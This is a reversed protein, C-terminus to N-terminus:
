TFTIARADIKAHLYYTGLLSPPVFSFSRISRQESSFNSVPANEGWDVNKETTM